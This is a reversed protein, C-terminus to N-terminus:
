LFKEIKGLGKALLGGEVERVITKYGAAASVQAIGSGMLGCGLVGVSRIDMKQVRAQLSQRSKDSASPGWGWRRRSSESRESGAAAPAGSRVPNGLWCRAARGSRLNDRHDRCDGSRWRYLRDRPGAERRSAEAGADADLATADRDHRAPPRARDRRRQREGQQ